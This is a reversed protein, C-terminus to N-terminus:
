IKIGKPFIIYEVFWEQTEYFKILESVESLKKLKNEYEVFIQTQIINIPIKIHKFYYKSNYKKNVKNKIKEINVKKHSLNIINFKERKIFINCFENLIKDEHESWSHIQAIIISDNLALLNEIKNTKNFFTKLHKNIEIEKKNNILEQVRQFIKEFIFDYMKAFKHYYVTKFLNVRQTILDEVSQIAKAKIITKKNKIYINELIYEVESFGYSVGSFYSDRAMYDLKDVDITSTILPYFENKKDLIKAVENLNLKKLLKQTSKEHDFHPFVKEWLHSFPGHGIDHMLAALRLNKKTKIDTKILGNRLVKRMLEYAGLSHSFRTHNASPFVFDVFSLQKINRLRQFEFTEIYKKDSDLIIINKYIPDKIILRSNKEM